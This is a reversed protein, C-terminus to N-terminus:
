TFKGDWEVHAAQNDANSDHMLGHLPSYIYLIYLQKMEVKRVYAEWEPSTLHSWWWTWSLGEM